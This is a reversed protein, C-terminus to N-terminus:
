RPAGSPTKPYSRHSSADFPVRHLHCEGQSFVHPPEQWCTGLSPGQAVMEGLLPQLRTRPSIFPLAVGVGSFILAVSWNKGLKGSQKWSFITSPPKGVEPM